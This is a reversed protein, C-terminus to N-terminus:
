KVGNQSCATEQTPQPLSLLYEHYNGIRNNRGGAHEVTVNPVIMVPVGMDKCRLAFMYDEGYWHGDGRSLGTDFFAYIPTGKVSVSQTRWEPHADRMRDFQTRSIRILGTPAVEARLYPGETVPTGDAHTYIRVPWGEKGHRYPYAVAMIDYASDLLKLFTGAEAWLDSDLMILDSCESDLFEAVIRNRAQPVYCCGIEYYIECSWGAQELSRVNGVLCSTACVDVKGDYTPVGIFVSKKM